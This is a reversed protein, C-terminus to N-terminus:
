SSRVRAAYDEVDQLTVRRATGIRAPRPFKGRQIERELTRTCVGLLTAARKLTMFSGFSPKELHSAVVTTM